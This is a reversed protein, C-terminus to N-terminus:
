GPGVPACEVTVDVLHSGTKLQECANGVLEITRDGVLKWGNEDNLLLKEGDLQVLVYDPRDPAEDLDLDCRVISRTIQQLEELLSAEDEVPRHQLDGTAGRMAFGDLVAALDDNGPGSTDYGIVYTRIDAMALAEIAANSADADEPTSMRGQGMPCTPLGDTVLLVYQSGPQADAKSAHGNLLEELTQSTPTGGLPITRDLVWAIADASDKAVPVVMLGITCSATAGGTVRTPLDPPESSRSALCGAPESTELCESFMEIDDAGGPQNRPHPFLTLGFNVIAGLERTIGKVASVSPVWRGGGTMSGSRDLVIMMEPIVREAALQAVECADSGGTPGAASPEPAVMPGAVPERVPQQLARSGQPIPQSGGRGAAGVAAGPIPATAAARGTGRTERGEDTSCSAGILTCALAFFPYSCRSLGSRKVDVEVAILACVHAGDPQLGSPRGKAEASFRRGARGRVCALTPCQKSRTHWSILWANRPSALGSPPVGGPEQGDM